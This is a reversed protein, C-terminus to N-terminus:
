RFSSFPLGAGNNYLQQVESITLDNRGIWVAVEDIQGLWGGGSGIELGITFHINGNPNVPGAFPTTVYAGGNVSIKINTEMGDGLLLIGRQLIALLQQASQRLLTCIM